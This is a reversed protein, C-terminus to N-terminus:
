VGSLALAWIHGVFGLRQRQLDLQLLYTPKPPRLRQVRVSPATGSHLVLALRPPSIFLPCSAALSPLRYWPERASYTSHVGLTLSFFPLCDASVETDGHLPEIIRKWEPPASFLRSKPGLPDVGFTLAPTSLSLTRHKRAPKRQSFWPILLQHCSFSLYRCVFRVPSLREARTFSLFFNLASSRPSLVAAPPNVSM